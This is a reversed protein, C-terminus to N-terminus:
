KNFGSQDELVPGFSYKYNVQELKVRNVSEIFLKGDAVPHGFLVINFSPREKVQSFYSKCKFGDYGENRISEAIIRCKPHEAEDTEDLKGTECLKDILISISEFPTNDPIEEFSNAINLLKLDKKCRFTALVIEDAVKVRCEHLCTEIDLSSYFVPNELANWRGSTTHPATDFSTPMLPDEAMNTRIRYLKSDSPLTFTTSRKVLESVARSQEEGGKELATYHDTIGLRWLPPGYNFLVLGTQERLLEYDNQLSSRFTVSEMGRDDSLQYVPAYGGINQM